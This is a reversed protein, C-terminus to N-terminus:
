RNGWLRWKSNDLMELLVPRPSGCLWLRRCQDDSVSVRVYVSKDRVYVSKAAVRVTRLQRHCCPIHYAFEDIMERTAVAALLGHFDTYRSQDMLLVPAASAGGGDTTM